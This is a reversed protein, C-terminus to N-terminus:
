PKGQEMWTKKLKQYLGRYKDAYIAGNPRVFYERGERSSVRDQYVGKRIRKAVTGRM